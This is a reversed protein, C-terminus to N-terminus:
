RAYMRELFTVPNMHQADLNGYSGYPSLGASVVTASADVGKIAAYAQKLLQTYKAPDPGPAWFNVINPENWIEYAHVGLPGYHAAAAKAFAAYDAVNTPAYTSETGAPRAWPPTYLMGALVNLGRARASNVVRDFSAWDYSAPGAYQILNWNLDIRVWTAGAAKVGDFYRALDTATFNHVNGGCAVGFRASAAAPAAVVAAAASVATTTGGANTALVSSRITSGVDAAAVAYSQANAGAIPTCNAGSADCRNWGYGFGTPSGSWSGTSTTLTSGPQAVGSVQPVATSTPAAAIAAASVAGTPASTASTSGGASAASVTARLVFGVDGAAVAYTQAGAGAIAACGTGAADCRSWAYAFSTPSGSWTGTTTSLTAGAQATGSVQPLATNSPAVPAATVAATTPSTATTAGYRNKATVQSRLAFGADTASLKYTSATAGAVLSCGTANCRQWAYGYSTVGGTWKGTSTTLSQGVVAQGTVVPLSSGVPVRKTSASTSGTAFTLLLLAVLLPRHPRRM